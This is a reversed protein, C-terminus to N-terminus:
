TGVGMLSRKPTPTIVTGALFAAMVTNRPVSVDTTITFSGATISAAATQIAYDWVMSMGLASHNEAIEADFVAPVNFGSCNAAKSGLFIVLCNPVTITAAPYPLGLTSGSGATATTHVNGTTVSPGGTFACMQGYCQGGSSYAVNTTGSETGDAIKWFLQTTGSATRIVVPTFGTDAPTFTGGVPGSAMALFISDGASVLPYPVAAPTSNNKEVAAALNSFAWTM